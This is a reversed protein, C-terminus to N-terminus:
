KGGIYDKNLEMYREIANEYMEVPNMGESYLETYIENFTSFDNRSSVDFTERKLVKRNLFTALTEFATYSVLGYIDPKNIRPLNEEYKSMLKYLVPLLVHIGLEHSFMDLMIDQDHDYFVTNKELSLN